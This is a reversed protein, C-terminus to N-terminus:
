MEDFGPFFVTAIYEFFVNIREFLERLFNFLTYPKEEPM